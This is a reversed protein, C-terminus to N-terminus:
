SCPPSRGARRRIQFAGAPQRGSTSVFGAEALFQSTSPEEFLALVLKKQFMTMSGIRCRGPAQVVASHVTTRVSLTCGEDPVCAPKALRETTLGSADVFLCVALAMASLAKVFNTRTPRM